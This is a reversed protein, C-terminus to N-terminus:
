LQAIIRKKLKIRPRRNGKLGKVSKDSNILLVLKDCKKKATSFLHLHGSHIIDFCGNTIGIKFKALKWLKIKLNLDINSESCFKSIVDQFEKFTYEIFHTNDLRYEIGLERKYVTIWDRDIMPVRILLQKNKDDKWKIKKVLTKLFIVRDKFVYDRLYDHFISL